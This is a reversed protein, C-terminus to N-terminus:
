NSLHASMLAEILRLENIRVPAKDADTTFQQTERNIVDHVAQVQERDLSLKLNAM